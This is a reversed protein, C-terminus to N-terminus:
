RKGSHPAPHLPFPTEGHEAVKFVKCTGRPATCEEIKGRKVQLQIEDRTLTSKELEESASTEYLTEDQIWKLAERLGEIIMPDLSPLELLAEVNM